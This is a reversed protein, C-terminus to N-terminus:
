TLLVCYFMIGSVNITRSVNIADKEKELIHIVM